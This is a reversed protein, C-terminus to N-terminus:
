IRKRLECARELCDELEQFKGERIVSALSQMHVALEDLHDAIAAGNQETIERWMQSSGMAIRTTDRLGNGAIRKMFYPDEGSVRLQEVIAVAAMHPTHSLLSALQDHRRPHTFVLKGGLAEWFAAVKGAAALDTKETPTIYVTGGVFLDANGNQWGTLHGGVMPHSAVFHARGQIREAEEVLSAKTSGVDTVITGPQSKQLVDPLCERIKEVPGALLVLDAEALGEELDFTYGDIVGAEVAEDHGRGPRALAIIRSTLGRRQAAMAASGGLLGLGIILLRLRGPRPTPNGHEPHNNSM